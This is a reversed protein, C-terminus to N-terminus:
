DFSGYGSTNRGNKETRRKKSLLQSSATLLDKFSAATGLIEEVLPSSVPAVAIISDDDAMGIQPLDTEAKQTDTTPQPVPIPVAAKSEPPPLLAIGKELDAQFESIEMANIAKRNLKQPLVGERILRLFSNNELADPNLNLKTAATKTSYPSIFMGSKRFWAALDQVRTVSGCFTLINKAMDPENHIDEVDIWQLNNSMVKKDKTDVILYQSGDSDEQEKRAHGWASGCTVLNMFHIKDTRSLPKRILEKPYIGEKVYANMMRESIVDGLLVPTEGIKETALKIIGSETYSSATIGNQSFWQAATLAVDAEANFLVPNVGGAKLESFKKWQLDAGLIIEKKPFSVYYNKIIKSM